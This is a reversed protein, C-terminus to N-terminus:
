RMPWAMPTARRGPWRWRRCPPAARPTTARCDPTRLPPSGIPAAPPRRHRGPSRVARGRATRQGPRRRACRRAIAGRGPVARQRGGHGPRPRSRGPGRGARGRRARAPEPGAADAGHGPADARPDEARAHRRGARAHGRRRARRRQLPRRRDASRRTPRAARHARGQGARAGGAGRHRRRHGPAAQRLPRPRRHRWCTPRDRSPRRQIVASRRQQARSPRWPCRRAMAPDECTIRHDSSHM